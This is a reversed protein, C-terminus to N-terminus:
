GPRRRGAPCLVPGAVPVVAAWTGAGGTASWGSLRRAPGGEVEVLDIGPPAPSRRGSRGPHRAVIGGGSRSTRRAVATGEPHSQRPVAAGGGVTAPAAPAVACGRSRRGLWAAAVPVWCALPRGAWPCLASAVAGALVVVALALGAAGPAVRLTLLAGAAGGALTVIQGAQLGLLLGRRELPQFAYRRTGDAM